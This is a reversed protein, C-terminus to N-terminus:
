GDLRSDYRVLPWAEGPISARTSVRSKRTRPRAVKNRVRFFKARTWSDLALGDYRGVLKLLIRPLTIASM